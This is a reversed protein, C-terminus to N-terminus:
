AIYVANIDTDVLMKFTLETKPDFIATGAYRGFSVKDGLAAWKEPMDSWAMPGIMVVFGVNQAARSMEKNKGTNPLVIGGDTVTEDEVDEVLVLIRDGCVKLGIDEPKPLDVKKM